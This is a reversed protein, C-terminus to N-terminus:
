FRWNLSATVQRGISIFNIEKDFVDEETGDYDMLNNAIVRLTLDDNINYGLGGNWVTYGRFRDIPDGNYDLYQDDYQQFKDILGGSRSNGQVFAYWDGLSYEIAISYESPSQYANSCPLELDPPSISM